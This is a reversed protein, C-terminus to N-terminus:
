NFCFNIEKVDGRPIGLLLSFCKRHGKRRGAGSERGRASSPGARDASAARGGARSPGPLNSDNAAAAGSRRAVGPRSPGV